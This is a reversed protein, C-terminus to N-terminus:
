LPPEQPEPLDAAQAQTMDLKIVHRALWDIRGGHPATRAVPHGNLALILGGKRRGHEDARDYAHVDPSLGAIASAAEQAIWHVPLSSILRGFAAQASPPLYVLVSTHFVVVTSGAPTGRVAEPLRELLDGRLMTAPEAAAIEAAALLRDKRAAADPGPWILATLWALDDPDAPDLPELDIGIRTTVHPLVRPPTRHGTAGVEILTLLGPLDALLPVLATCRAPENTQTARTLMTARLADPDALVSERLERPDAPYGHLYRM